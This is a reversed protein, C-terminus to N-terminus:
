GGSAGAAKSASLRRGQIPTTWAGAAAPPIAPRGPRVRVTVDSVAPGAAVPTEPLLASEGHSRNESEGRVGFVVADEAAGRPGPPRGIRVFHVIGDFGHLVGDGRRGSEPLEPAFEFVPNDRDVGCSSWIVGAVM